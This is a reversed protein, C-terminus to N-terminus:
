CISSAPIAGRISEARPTRSSPAATLSFTSADLFRKRLAFWESQPNSSMRDPLAFFAGIARIKKRWERQAM